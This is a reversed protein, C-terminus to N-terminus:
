CVQLWGTTAVARVCGGAGSRLLAVEFMESSLMSETWYGFLVARLSCGKVIWKYFFNYLFNFFFCKQSSCQIFFILSLFLKVFIQMIFNYMIIIGTVHHLKDVQSLM